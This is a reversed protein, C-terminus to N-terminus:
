GIMEINAKGPPVMPTVLEKYDIPVNIFCPRNQSLADQLASEMDIVESLDFSNIGFGKAILPFDPEKEFKSAIYNGNYFLEQQQRVL